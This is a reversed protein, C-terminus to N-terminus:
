AERLPSDPAIVDAPDDLKDLAQGIPRLVEAAFRHITDRIEVDQDSLGTDYSLLAMPVRGEEDHSVTAAATAPRRCNSTVTAPIALIELPDLTGYGEASRAAGARNPPRSPPHPRTPITPNPHM